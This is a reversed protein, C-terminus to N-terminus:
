VGTERESRGQVDGSGARAAERLRAEGAAGSFSELALVKVTEYDPFEKVDVIQEGSTPFFFWAIFPDSAFETGSWYANQIGTLTVDGVTQDGTKDDGYTGPLYYTYMYALENDRCNAETDTSCDIISDTSGTPTGAAVSMSALRWDDYGAYVLNEAWDVLDQWNAAGSLQDNSLGADAVWTIDLVTDNVLGNGADVLAAQAGGGALLLGAAAMGQWTKM